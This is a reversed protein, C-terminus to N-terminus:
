ADIREAAALWEEEAAEQEVLVARLQADLETLRDADAGADAMAENLKAVRAHLTELRRELRALNKRAFVSDDVVLYRLIMPNYNVDKFNLFIAAVTAAIM